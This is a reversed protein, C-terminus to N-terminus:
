LPRKSIQGPKRPYKEPTEGVKEFFLRVFEADRGPLRYREMGSARLGLWELVEERVGGADAEGRPLVLKGGVRVFGVTLELTQSLPALARATVWDSRERWASEHAAVEARKEIITCNELGLQEQIFRLFRSKKKVSEVLNIRCGPQFIGLFIGPTGAGSGVDTITEGERVPMAANLLSSDLLHYVMMEEMTKYGTLNVRVNEQLLHLLYLAAKQQIAESLSLSFSKLLPNFLAIFYECPDM